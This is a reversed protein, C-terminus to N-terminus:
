VNPQSREGDALQHFAARAADTGIVAIQDGAALRFDPEPNPTLAGERMVAVISAGTVTRVAQERVSSDVLPSGDRIPIWQLDVQQGATRLCDLTRFNHPASSRV